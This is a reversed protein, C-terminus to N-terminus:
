QQRNPFKIYTSDNQINGINSLEKTWCQENSAAMKIGSFRTWEKKSSCLIRSCSCVVSGPDMGGHCARPCLGPKATIFLAAICTAGLPIHLLKCVTRLSWCAASDGPSGPLACPTPAAGTDLEGPRLTPPPAPWKCKLWSGLHHQHVPRRAVSQSGGDIGPLPVTLDCSVSHEGQSSFALSSRFCTLILSPSNRRGWVRVYNCRKCGSLLHMLCPFASFHLCHYWPPPFTTTRQIKGLHNLTKLINNSFNNLM